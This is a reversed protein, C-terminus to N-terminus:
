KDKLEEKLEDKVEKLKSDYHEKVGMLAGCLTFMQGLCWLISTHIVGFPPLFICTFILLIGAILLILAFLETTKLKEM